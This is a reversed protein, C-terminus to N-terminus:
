FLGDAPGLLAFLIAGAGLALLAPRAWGPAGRGAGLLLLLLLGAAWALVLPAVRGGSYVDLARWAAAAFLAVAVLGIADVRRAKGGSTPVALLLLLAGLALWVM